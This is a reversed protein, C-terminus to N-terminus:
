NPKLAFMVSVGGPTVVGYRTSYISHARTARYGMECMKPLLEGAGFVQYVIIGTKPLMPDGHFQPAKYSVDGSRVPEARDFRVGDKNLMSLQVDKANIDTDMPVTWLFTGGPRLVRLIEALAVYPDPIHEFVEASLVLNFSNDPFSLNRLDEHRVMGGWLATHWSGPAATPSVFESSTYRVGFVSSLLDHMLGHAETNYVTFGERPKIDRLCLRHAGPEAFATTPAWGAGVLKSHQFLRM